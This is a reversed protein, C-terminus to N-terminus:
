ENLSAIRQLIDLPLPIAKRASIDICFGTVVTKAALEGSEDNTMQHVFRVSKEGAELVSSRITLLDGARLEGKYEIPQEVAVLGFGEARMRSPRRGSRGFNAM